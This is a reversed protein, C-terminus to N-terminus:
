KNKDPEGVEESEIQEEKLKELKSEIKERKKELFRFDTQPSYKMKM